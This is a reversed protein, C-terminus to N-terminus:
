DWWINLQGYKESIVETWSPATLSRGKVGEGKSYGEFVILIDAVQGVMIRVCVRGQLYRQRYTQRDM